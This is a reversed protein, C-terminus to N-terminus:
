GTKKKKKKRFYVLDIRVACLRTEMTTQLENNKRTNKYEIDAPIKRIKRLVLQIVSSNRTQGFSPPTQTHSAWTKALGARTVVTSRVASGVLWM